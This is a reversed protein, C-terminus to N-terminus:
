APPQMYDHVSYPCRVILHTKLISKFGNEHQKTKLNDPLNNFLTISSHRPNQKYISLKYNTLFFNNKTRTNHSHVQSNTPHHIRNAIAYLISYYIFLAPVTLIKLTQFIPQM